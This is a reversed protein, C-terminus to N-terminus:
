LVRIGFASCNGSDIQGIEVSFANRIRSSKPNASSAAFSATTIQSKDPDCGTEANAGASGTFSLSKPVAIMSPIVRPQVALQKSSDGSVRLRKSTAANM